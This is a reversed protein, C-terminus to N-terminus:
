ELSAGAPREVLLEAIARADACHPCAEVAGEMTFLRRELDELCWDRWVHRRELVGIREEQSALADRQRDVLDLLRRAGRREEQLLVALPDPGTLSGLGSPGAFSRASRRTLVVLVAPFALLAVIGLSTM